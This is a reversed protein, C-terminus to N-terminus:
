AAYWASGWPTNRFVTFALLAGFAVVLACGVFTRFHHTGM